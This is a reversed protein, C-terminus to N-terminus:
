RIRWLTGHEMVMKKKGEVNNTQEELIANDEQVNESKESMKFLARIMRHLNEELAENKRSKDM